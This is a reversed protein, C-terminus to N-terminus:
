GGAGFHRAHHLEEPQDACQLDMGVGEQSFTEDGRGMTAIRGAAVVGGTQGVPSLDAVHSYDAALVGSDSSGCGGM